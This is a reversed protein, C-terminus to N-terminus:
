GRVLPPGSDGHSGPVVATDQHLAFFAVVGLAVHVNLSAGKGYIPIFIRRDVAALAKKTVGHDEHGVLLCTDDAFAVAHYPEADATIEVAYVTFREAQQRRIATEVDAEYRWRVRKDKNRGVQSIRKHPPQATIGTLV